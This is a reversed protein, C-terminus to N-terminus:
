GPDLLQDLGDAQGDEFNGSELGVVHNGCQDVLGGGGSTVAEDARTICVEGLKNTLVDAHEVGFLALREVGVRHAFLEAVTRSLYSVNAREGTVRGVVDGAGDADSRFGGYFQDGFVSGQLSQEIVDIRDFAFLPFRDAVGGLIQPQELLQHRKLTVHGNLQIQLRTTRVTRVSIPEPCQEALQTKM